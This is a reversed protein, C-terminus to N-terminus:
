ELADDVGTQGHVCQAQAHQQGDRQRGSMPVLGSYTRLPIQDEEPGAGEGSSVM